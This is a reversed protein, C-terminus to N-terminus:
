LINCLQEKIKELEDKMQVVLKQIETHNAKSGTTNIERGMEQSIFALKRGVDEGSQATERFYRIHQALRVKEETIDLKELYYIIEQEFRNQDVETGLQQLNTTLREKVTEIRQAEYQPIQLSLEEIKDVHKLIDSILHAGETERFANIAEIAETTASLLAQWEEESIEESSSDIVGPMRLISPIIDAKAGVKECLKSIENYYATFLEESIVTKATQCDTAERSVSFEVKGRGLSESVMSRLINEKERYVGPIRVSLDLQKSNLSKIEVTIKEGAYNKEAKGFGTMSKIM